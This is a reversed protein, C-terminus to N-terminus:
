VNIYLPYYPCNPTPSIRVVYNHILLSGIDCMSKIKAERECILSIKRVRM